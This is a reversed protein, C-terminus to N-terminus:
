AASVGYLKQFAQAKVAEAKLTEASFNQWSEWKKTKSKNNDLLDKLRYGEIDIREAYFNADAETDLRDSEAIAKGIAASGQALKVTGEMVSSVGSGIGTAMVTSFSAALSGVSLFISALMTWLQIQQLIAAKKELDKGALQDAIKEWLGMESAVQTALMATGATIMAIGAGTGAGTGIAAGGLAITFLSGIWSAVKGFTSWANSQNTKAINEEMIALQEQILKEKLKQQQEINRCHDTIQFNTLGVQRQICMLLALCLDEPPPLSPLDQLFDKMSLPPLPAESIQPMIQEVKEEKTPASPINVLHYDDAWDHRHTITSM